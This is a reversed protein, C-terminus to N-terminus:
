LAVGYTYAVDAPMTWDPSVDPIMRDFLAVQAENTHELARRGSVSCVMTGEVTVRIKRLPPILIGVAMSVFSVFGYGGKAQRSWLWAVGAAREAATADIRVLVYDRREYDDVHGGGLGRAGEQLLNGDEDVITAMHSFVGYGGKKGRYGDLWQGIRILRPILRNGHVLIFDGPQCMSTPVSTGAPYIVTITM